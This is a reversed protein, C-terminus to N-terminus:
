RGGINACRRENVSRSWRRSALTTTVAIAGAASSRSGWRTDFFAPSAGVFVATDREPLPQGAPLAPEGWTWGSLPTHTSVSASIVGPLRRLEDLVSAPLTGPRQELNVLLVGDSRFGADLARLNGLTRLFLGAGILLVLSLAM